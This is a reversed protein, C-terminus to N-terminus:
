RVMASIRYVLDDRTVRDNLELPEVGATGRNALATSHTTLNDAGQTQIQVGGGLELEDAM